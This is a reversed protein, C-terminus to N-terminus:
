KKRRKKKEKIENLNFAIGNLDISQFNVAFMCEIPFLVISHSFTPLLFITFPNVKYVIENAVFTCNSGRLLPM